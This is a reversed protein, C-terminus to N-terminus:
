SVAHVHRRAIIRVWDDQPVVEFSEFDPTYAAVVEDAQDRLIGSLVVTGGPQCADRIHEYLDVLSKALINALVVPYEARPADDPLFVKLRAAVDNREANDVSAILAQPDNDIGIAELAGLKLAAIALIGSGCGFDLVRLGAIGASDLWALCLATTAHTGSGFALGPDLRVIVTDADATPEINSPYIWLRRGFQMPKFQDMWARTWEQDAVETIKLRAPTLWPIMIQLAGFLGRQDVGEEFLARVTTTPWVPTEGPGPELIPHDEADLLTVSVAGLDDLAQEVRSLGDSRVDFSIEIWNM